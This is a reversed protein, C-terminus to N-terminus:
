AHTAVCHLQLRRLFTHLASEDTGLEEKFLLGLSGVGAGRPSFEHLLLGRIQEERIQSRLHARKAVQAYREARAANATRAAMADATTATARAVARLQRIEQFERVAKLGGWGLDPLTAVTAIIRVNETTKRFWEAKEEDGAMELGYTTGDTGLLVLSGGLAMLGLAGIGSAFLAVSMGVCVVDFVVGIGDDSHAALLKSMTDAMARGAEVQAQASALEANGEAALANLIAATVRDWLATPRKPPPPPADPWHFVFADGFGLDDRRPARLPYLNDRSAWAVGVSPDCVADVLRCLNMRADNIGDYPGWDPTLTISM